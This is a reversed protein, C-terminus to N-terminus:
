PITTSWVATDGSEFGDGFVCGGGVMGSASGNNTFLADGVTLAYDDANTTSPDGFAGQFQLAQATSSPLPGAFPPGFDGDVDNDFEGTTPGTYASGGWALSWYILGGGDEFTLRGAPLYSAPILNTLTFDPPPGFRNIFETSASLIRAGAAGNPVDKPFTLLVVPNMGAADFAVLRTENVFNQGVTRTRLQIAQISADGCVGGIVQEIQMLHFVGWAPDPRLVAIGVVLLALSMWRKM